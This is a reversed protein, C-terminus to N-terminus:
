NIWRATVVRDIGNFDKIIDVVKFNNGFEVINVVDEAQGYGIELIIYSGKKLHPPSESIIRSYFDLGDAGGYLALHPEKLVEKQLTCFEDKAIYPPNSIIIDFVGNLNNFLDSEVFEIMSGANYRQANYRAVELADASVDSAVIKCDTIGKTLIAIAINGSGTCLDLIRIPYQASSISSCKEIAADVLLETEPRPILVREDVAIDMGCFDARGVIYQIPTHPEVTKM